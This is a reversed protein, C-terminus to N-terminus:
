SISRGDVPPRGQQRREFLFAALLVGRIQRAAIAQSGTRSLGRGDHDFLGGEYRVIRKLLRGHLMVGLDRGPALTMAGLSRYVFDLNTPSTNEDLSFPLKFHGGQVQLAALARYDAFVDQWKGDGVLEREVQFEVRGLLVGEVGVRRRALDMGERLQDEDRLEGNVRDLQVRARPTLETGRGLKFTLPHGNDQAFTPFGAAGLLLMTLVAIRHVAYTSHIM